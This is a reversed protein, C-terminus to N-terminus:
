WWDHLCPSKAIWKSSPKATVECLMGDKKCVATNFCWKECIWRDATSLRSRSELDLPWLSNIMIWLLGNQIHLLSPSSLTTWKSGNDNHLPQFKDPHKLFRDSYHSTLALYDAVGENLYGTSKCWTTYIYWPAALHRFMHRGFYFLGLSSFWSM